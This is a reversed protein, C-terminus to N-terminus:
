VRESGNMAVHLTPQLARLRQDVTRKRNPRCAMRMACEVPLSCLPSGPPQYQPQPQPQPPPQQPPPPPPQQQQQQYHQQQPPPQFHAMASSLRSASEQRQAEAGMGYPTEQRPPEEQEAPIVPLDPHFRQLAGVVRQGESSLFEQAEQLRVPKNSDRHSRVLM